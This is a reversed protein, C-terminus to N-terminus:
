NAVPNDMYPPPANVVASTSYAPPMKLAEDYNPPLLLEADRRRGDETTTYTLVSNQRLHLYQYCAWVVGIFYAKAILVFVYAMLICLAIWQGDLKMLQDRFPM